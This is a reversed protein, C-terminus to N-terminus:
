RRLPPTKTSCRTPRWACCRWTPRRFDWGEVTEALIKDVEEAHDEYGRVLREAFETGEQDLPEDGEYDYAALAHRWAESLPVDGQAHEFLAKFALERAKRRM